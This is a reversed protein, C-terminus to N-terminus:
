GDDAVASGRMGSGDLMLAEAAARIEEPSVGGLPDLRAKFGDIRATGADRIAGVFASRGEIRLDPLQGKVAKRVRNTPRRAFDIALRWLQDRVARSRRPHLWRRRVARTGADGITQYWENIPHTDIEPLRVASIPEAPVEIDDNEIESTWAAIARNTAARASGAIAVVADDWELDAAEALEAEDIGVRGFAADARDILIQAAGAEVGLVDAVESARFAAFAAAARDRRQIISDKEHVMETLVTRLPGADDTVIAEIVMSYKIEADRVLADLEDAGADATSLVIRTPIGRERVTELLTATIADAYREPSIVFLVADVRHLLEAVTDPYHETPPTDILVVRDPRNPGPVRRGPIYSEAIDGWIAIETTTPRLPGATVVRAGALVNVMESKGVGSAGVVAVILADGAEPRALLRELPQLAPEALKPEIQSLLAHLQEARQRDM